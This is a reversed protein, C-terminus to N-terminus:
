PIVTAQWAVVQWRGERKLFTGTNFYSRLDSDDMTTAVLRFAVVAMTGYMQIQIDEATYVPGSDGRESSDAVSFGQMIEAKTTRTGNSSTYILDDAWFRNHAAEKDAGALFEHLMQTLIEADDALVAPAVVLLGSLFMVGTIKQIGAIMNWVERPPWTCLLLRLGWM